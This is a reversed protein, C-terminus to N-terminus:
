ITVHADQKTEKADLRQGAMLLGVQEIDIEDTRFVGMIEGKFVVAIRDSLAFIDELEESALVIAFGERRKELLMQHVYEIVGVDLGRTPQNALICCTASWFERALIIKQANGGSLTDTRAHPGPTVIGFKQIADQAFDLIRRTNLVPGDAFSPNSQLGLIANEALSFEGVLGAKFRDDPIYGVGHKIMQEPGHHTVEDGYLWIQGSDTDRVGMLAEFLENQGNGSVGAIGLIEHAHVKFSMGKVAQQDKDNRIRLGTVELITEGPDIEEREAQLMVPRGVMMSTLDEKTVDSTRVTDVINGKRLVAVHDSQLVEDLKHSIMIISLNNDTMRRLIRFLKASEQPTLVATPEDLILLEAGLFLVKVIEVWQQQGVSLQWVKTDLELDIDYRECLEHVEKRAEGLDLALGSDRSGLVINELVTMPPVLVFHQHVMGIGLAIADRPSAFSVEKGDYFIRGGDPRYFGYLCSSLTSKGAGNEGLLCLIEGREVEFSVDSNAVVPGFTKTLGTVKLLPPSNSM